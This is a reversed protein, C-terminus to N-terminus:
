YCETCCSTSCTVEQKCDATLAKYEYDASAIQTCLGTPINGVLNNHHLELVELEPLTALSDPINGSLKNSYLWLRRLDTCDGLETPITGTLTTNTISLSAIGSLHSVQTPITGVIDNSDLWLAVTPIHTFNHVYLFSIDSGM